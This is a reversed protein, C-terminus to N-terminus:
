RHRSELWVRVEDESSFTDAYQTTPDFARWYQRGTRDRAVVIKPDQDLTALNLVFEQFRHLTARVLNHHPRQPALLELKEYQFRQEFTQM